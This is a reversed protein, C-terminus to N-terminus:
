FSHQKFERIFTAVRAPLHLRHSYIVNVPMSTDHLESLLPVLSGNDFSERVAFDPSYAIANGYKALNATALASNVRFVQKPSAEVLGNKTSFTWTSLRRNTDFICPLDAIDHLSKPMGHRELFIPSACLHMAVDGVYSAIMSSDDLSGVRIAADFGENILDVFRDSLLIDVELEPHKDALMAIFPMVVIEGYTTPASLRIKGVLSHHEDQISSELNYLDNIVQKSKEYYNVGASTAQVSRTSRRVLRVKLHEELNSVNASVSAKTKGLRRAAATYSGEEHLAIFSEMLKLKDM